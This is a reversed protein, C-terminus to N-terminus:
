ELRHVVAVRDLSIAPAESDLPNFCPSNTPENSQPVVHTAEMAEFLVIRQHIAPAARCSEDYEVLVRIDDSLMLQLERLIVRVWPSRPTM